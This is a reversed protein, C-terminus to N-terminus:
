MRRCLTDVANVAAIAEEMTLPADPEFTLPEESRPRMIGLGYLSNIARVLIISLEGEQRVIDTWEYSPYATQYPRSPYLAM